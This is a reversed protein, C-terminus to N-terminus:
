DAFPQIVTVADHDFPQLLDAGTHGDRRFLTLGGGGLTFGGRGGGSIGGRRLTALAFIGGGLCIGGGFGFCSVRVCLGSLSLRRVSGPGALSCCLSGCMARKKISRGTKAQTIEIRIMPSPSSDIMLRGTACYGWIAGGETVM